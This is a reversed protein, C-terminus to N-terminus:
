ARRPSAPRRARPATTMTTQRACQSVDARRATASSTGRPQYWTAELHPPLRVDHEALYSDIASFDPLEFAAPGVIAGRGFQMLEAAPDLPVMSPLRLATADFDAVDGGPRSLSRRLTSPLGLGLGTPIDGSRSPTM